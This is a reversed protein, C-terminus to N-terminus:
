RPLCLLQHSLDGSQCLARRRPASFFGAGGWRRGTCRLAIRWTPARCFRTGLRLGRNLRGRCGAPASLIYGPWTRGGYLWRPENQAVAGTTVVRAVGGLAGSSAPRNTAAPGASLRGGPLTAAASPSAQQGPQGGMLAILQRCRGPSAQAATLSRNAASRSTAWTGGPRSAQWVPRGVAQGALRAPGGGAVLARRHRSLRWYEPLFANHQAATAGSCLGPGPATEARTSSASTLGSRSLSRGACGCTIGGTHFSAVASADIQPARTWLSPEGAIAARAGAPSVRSITSQSLAGSQRYSNRAPIM